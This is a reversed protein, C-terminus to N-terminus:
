TTKSFLCTSCNQTLWFTLALTKTTCSSEPYFNDGQLSSGRSGNETAPCLHSTPMGKFAKPYGLILWYLPHLKKCGLNGRHRRGCGPISGKFLPLHHIQPPYFYIFFFWLLVLIIIICPPSPRWLCALPVENRSVVMYSNIRRVSSIISPCSCITTSTQFVAAGM